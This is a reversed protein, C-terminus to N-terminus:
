PILVLSGSTERAELARHAAAADQLPFTRGVHVKLVGAGIVAFLDAASTLLHDRAATYTFLTPRTLYLSGKASLVGIDIPPIKGSAQGFSVLLGRPRLSDLSGAFTAQGVGDYVVCVGEGATLTRVQEAFNVETYLIPHHCGHQEALAAKARSGVTGIVTAGLHAAWQCLLLGVGGAAAHVLITDGAKVPYTEKLLFRATLGQLCVAAATEPAISEPLPLLRDAPFLRTDAYAGLPGGAYAVRDGPQFATVDPGVADVVGAAEVGLGSPLSPVPYLGSRHYTDIFNVGVATQRLRVEGPGPALIETEESRLVEPGGHRQLRIAYTMAPARQDHTGQGMPSLDGISNVHRRTPRFNVRRSRTDVGQGWRARLGTALVRHCPVFLPLPNRKCAQGVARPASGLQRALDAYSVTEGFAIALVAQRFRAQFATPAPALPLAFRRLEGEIWATVQQKALVLCADQGYPELQGWAAATVKGDLAFISFPGFPTSVLCAAGQDVATM